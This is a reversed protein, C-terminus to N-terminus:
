SKHKDLSTDRFMEYFSMNRKSACLVMFDFDEKRRRALDAKAKETRGTVIDMVTPLRDSKM